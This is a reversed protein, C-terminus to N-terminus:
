FSIVDVYWDRVEGIALLTENDVVKSIEDYVDDGSLYAEVLEGAKEATDAEVEIPITGSVNVTFKSM